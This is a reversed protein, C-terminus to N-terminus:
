RENAFFEDYNMSLEEPLPLNQPGDSLSESSLSESGSSDVPKACACVGILLVLVMLLTLLRIKKM